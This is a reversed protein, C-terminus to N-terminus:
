NSRGPRPRLGSSGTSGRLTQAPLRMHTEGRVLFPPYHGANAYTLKRARTDYIGFFVTVYRECSTQDFLLTNARPIVQGCGLGDFAAARTIAHLSAGLLATLTKTKYVLV